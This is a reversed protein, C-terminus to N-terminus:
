LIWRHKQDSSMLDSSTRLRLVAPAIPSVMGAVIMAVASPSRVVRGSCRGARWSPISRRGSNPTTAITGYTATIAM